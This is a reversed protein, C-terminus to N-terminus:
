GDTFRMDPYHVRRLDNVTFHNYDYVFRQRATGPLRYFMEQVCERTDLHCLGIMRHTFCRVDAHTLRAYEDPTCFRWDGEIVRPVTFSYTGAGTDYVFKLPM